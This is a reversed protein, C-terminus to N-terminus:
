IDLLMFINNNGCCVYITTYGRSQRALCQVVHGLTEPDPALGHKTTQNTFFQQNQYQLM